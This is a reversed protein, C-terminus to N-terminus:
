GVRSWGTRSEEEAIARFLAKAVRWDEEAIPLNLDANHLVALCARREPETIHFSYPEAVPILCVRALNVDRATFATGPRTADGKGNLMAFFLSKAARIDGPEVATGCRAHELIAACASTEGNTLKLQGAHEVCIRAMHIDMASFPEPGDLSGRAVKLM